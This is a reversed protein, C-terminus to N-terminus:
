NDGSLAALQEAQFENVLPNILADLEGTVIEDLKYLTLNIRHDTVRGQPYNYTRIRESRDGTGVLSKRTESQASAAKEQEAAQLRSALLSMAKARNKHQSREEQCEVVVGTPIHTLRIASDTKNVHQGGAGSARFTDIRLDSKNIIIDDVEDMEPMVAVTCASTHIRGQSETAPVRQVRHAGSEFKLKSYAGEGVIRAIVEKYGGHEGDSASVIEVKWRQTEAYRSYMRFLDGSFISAEDGGTGARVELFVNRSDNPDKPLLLKQLVLQLAEKQAHGAKYEEVGMEKIDPDADTMMLEAEAINEDIQQFENFCNVVPELEAYEKSYARFLDQDMIVEAIGLLASLEDYRDSLSELKLKISEKM